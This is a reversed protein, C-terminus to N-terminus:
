HFNKGTILKKAILYPTKITVQKMGEESIDELIRKFEDYRRLIPFHFWSYGPKTIWLSTKEIDKLIQYSIGPDPLVLEPSDRLQLLPLISFSKLEHDSFTLNVILTKRERLNRTRLIGNKEYTLKKGDKYYPSSLFNGLSYFIPKGKYIEYGQLCHPHHGVIIDAGADIIAHAQHISLPRPFHSKGEGWHLSILIIDAKLEEKAKKIDEKILDIDLHCVGPSDYTAEPVSEVWEHSWSYGNISIIKDRVRLIAPRRAQAMNEGFGTYQINMSDLISITDKAAEYGYDFIHNNALNLVNFKMDKLVTLPTKKAYLLIKNPLPKGNNSAVSELNGFVIDSEFWSFAQAPLYNNKVKEFDQSFIGGLMLDGVLTISIDDENLMKNRTHM